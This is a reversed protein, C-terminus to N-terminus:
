KHFLSLYTKHIIFYASLIIFYRKISAFLRTNDIFIVVVQITSRHRVLTTDVCCRHNAVSRKKNLYM